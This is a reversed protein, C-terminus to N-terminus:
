RHGGGGGGGRSGGGGGGGHFGGGSGGGRIGARGGNYGGSRVGGYGATPHGGFFRGGRYGGYGYGGYGYGGGNLFGGGYLYYPSYFGYGFPSLFAGDGPLYTYGYLGQDWMWGSAFRGGGYSGAYRESLGENAEGLYQSRLSSWQYLEDKKNEDFKNPKGADGTFALQHGGKIVIAKTTSNSGRGEYAAAKGDFVRVTNNDANFEYLGQKLLLAQGNNVDIQLNNQQYIQDVEVQVRGREVAVETHTLNPSILRITSNDDVRLFVGPTLLVEVKGNSTALTGGEDLATSGVSHSNIARGDISANGEVYNLTGPGAPHADQALASAFLTALSLLTIVKLRPM